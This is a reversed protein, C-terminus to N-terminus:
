NGAASFNGSLFLYLLRFSAVTSVAYGLKFLRIYKSGKRMLILFPVICLAPAAIRNMLHYSNFNLLALSTLFICFGVLSFEKLSLKERALALSALLTFSIVSVSQLVHSNNSYTFATIDGSASLFVLHEAFHLGVACLLVAFLHLRILQAKSLRHISVEILLYLIAFITFSFHTLTGVLFLMCRFYINNSNILLLLILFAYMSRLIYIERSFYSYSFLAVLLLLFNMTTKNPSIKRTLYMYGFNLLFFNAFLFAAPSNSIVLSLLFFLGFITPEFKGTLLLFTSVTEFLGVENVQNFFYFYNALDEFLPQASLSLATLLAAFACAFVSTITSVHM